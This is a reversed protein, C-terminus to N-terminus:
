ITMIRMQNRLAEARAEMKAIYYWDGGRTAVSRHYNLADKIENLEGQGQEWAKQINAIAKKQWSVLERNARKWKMCFTDKDDDVTMYIENIKEFEQSTPKYGTRETFEQKTMKKTGKKQKNNNNQTKNSKYYSAFIINKESM